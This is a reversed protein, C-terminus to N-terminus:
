VNVCAGEVAGEKDSTLLCEPFHLLIVLQFLIVCLRNLSLPYMVNMGLIVGPTHQVNRVSTLTLSSELTSEEKATVGHGM